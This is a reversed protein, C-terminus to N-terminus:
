YPGIATWNIGVSDSGSGGFYVHCWAGETSTGGINLSIDRSADYKPTATIFPAVSFVLPFYFTVDKWSGATIAGSSATGWAIMRGGPLKQWYGYQNSGFFGDNVAALIQQWAGFSGSYYYRHYILGNGATITQALSQNGTVYQVILHIGSSTTPTNSLTASVPAPCYYTGPEVYDNLDGNDAIREGANLNFVGTDNPNPFQSTELKSNGDLSAVGNATGKESKQILVSTDAPPGQEGQPGQPGQPGAAGQEGQPGQPGMVNGLDLTAM